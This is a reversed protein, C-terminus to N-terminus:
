CKEPNGRVGVKAPPTERTRRGDLGGMGHERGRAEDRHRRSGNPRTDESPNAQRDRVTRAASAPVTIPLTFLEPVPLRSSPSFPAIGASPSNARVSLVPRGTSEPTGAPECSRTADHRTEIRRARGDDHAPSLARHPVEVERRGDVRQLLELDGALALAPRGRDGRLAM